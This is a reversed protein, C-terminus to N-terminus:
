IYNTIILEPKKKRNTKSASITREITKVQWKNEKIKRELLGHPYMTLMFKGKINELLNLLKEFDQLVYGKYHGCDSGIYPPDVFHFSGETDRSSIVRLADTCELQTQELRKCLESTFANKANFVRKPMINSAKDYGWTCDLKAAFSQKSLVWVAWARTVNDFYEPYNYVIQAYHHDRRCHLSEEIKTKLELYNSKAVKYFTVLNQNVDNIVEIKAKEKAFFVSAGGCFAETYLNHKPILPLIHKLMTQKGGYYSIPTKM